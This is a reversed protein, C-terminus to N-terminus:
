GPRAPAAKATEGELMEGLGRVTNWNRLTGAGGLRKPTLAPLLKSLSPQGTFHVWLDGNVLAVREGQTLYRALTAVRDEGLPRRSVRVVVGSADATSEAPFPNGAVLRRWDGANRLIIDVHRGFTEAFTAELRGELAGPDAEEAEFVLNGTSVLTRPAALGLGEAMRRLDAMVLRRGPGLVISHLLAVYTEAV